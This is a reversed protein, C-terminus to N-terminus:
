RIFRKDKTALEQMNEMIIHRQMEQMDNMESGEELRQQFELKRQDDVKEFYKWLDLSQYPSLLFTSKQKQLSNSRKIPSIPGNTGGLLSDIRTMMQQMQPSTPQTLENIEKQKRLFKGLTDGVIQEPLQNKNSQKKIHKLIM